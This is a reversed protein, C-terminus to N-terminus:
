DHPSGKASLPLQVWVGGDRECARHVSAHVAERCAPTTSSLLRIQQGNVDFRWGHSPCTILGGSVFGESLPAGRHPCRDDWVHIGSEGDRWAALRLAGVTYGRVEGNSLDKSDCVRRWEHPADVDGEVPDPFPAPQAGGNSCASM